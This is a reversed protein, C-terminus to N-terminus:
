GGLDKKTAASEWFCLSSQMCNVMENGLISRGEISKVQDVHILDFTYCYFKYVTNINGHLVYKGSTFIGASKFLSDMASQVLRAPQPTNQIVKPLLLARAALVPGDKFKDSKYGMSGKAFSNHNDAVGFLCATGHVRLALVQVAEGQLAILHHPHFCSYLIHKFFPMLFLSFPLPRLAWGTDLIMYVDETENLKPRVVIHGSRSWWADISGSQTFSTDPPLLKLPPM